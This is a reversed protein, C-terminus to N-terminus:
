LAVKQNANPCSGLGTERAYPSQSKVIDVASGIMASIEAVSHERTACGIKEGSDAATIMAIGTVGLHDGYVGALITGDVRDFAAFRSDGDTM